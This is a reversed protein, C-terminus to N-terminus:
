CIITPHMPLPAAGATQPGIWTPTWYPYSPMPVTVPVPQSWYHPRSELVAVRARLQAVEERLQEIESM